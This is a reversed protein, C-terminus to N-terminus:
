AASHVDEEAEVGMDEAAAKEPLKSAMDAEERFVM